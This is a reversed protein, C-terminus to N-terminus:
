FQNLEILKDFFDSKCTKLPFIHSRFNQQRHWFDNDFNQRREKQLVSDFSKAFNNDIKTFIPTKGLILAIIKM